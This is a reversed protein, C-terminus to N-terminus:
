LRNYYARYYNVFLEQLITNEFEDDIFGYCGVGLTLMNYQDRWKQVQHQFVFTDNLYKDYNDQWYGNQKMVLDYIIHKLIQENEIPDDDKKRVISKPKTHFHYLTISPLGTNVATIADDYSTELTSLPLNNILDIDLNSVNSEKISQIKELTDKRKHRRNVHTLINDDFSEVGISIRNVGNTHSINIKEADITEPCGELTFEIDKSVTYNSHIIDYLRQIQKANLISPTGGGIYVSQVQPKFGFVSIQLKAEKELADLYENYKLSNNEKKRVYSCYTCIGTCFPIHVYLCNKDIPSLGNAVSLWNNSDDLNFYSPITVVIQSDKEEMKLDLNIKEIPLTKYIELSEQLTKNYDM